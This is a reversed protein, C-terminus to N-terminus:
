ARGGLGVPGAGPGALLVLDLDHIMLDLVVGIDTSRFTYTALREAAIFKPRLRLGDLASLAPNFREIHGVQLLVGRRAPWSSWSRPRPWRRPWRSRSWRRSARADLFAGAVERHLATPM